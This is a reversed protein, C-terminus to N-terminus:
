KISWIETGSKNRNKVIGKRKLSYLDIRVTVVSYGIAKAIDPITLNHSRKIAGLLYDYLLKERKSLLITKGQNTIVRNSWDDYTMGVTLNSNALEDQYVDYPKVKLKQLLKDYEDASMTGKKKSALYNLADQLLQIELATADSGIRVGEIIDIWDIKIYKNPKISSSELKKDNVILFRVESEHEFALRKLLLLRIYNNRTFHDFYHKYDKNESNDEKTSLHLSNLVIPSLYKVRGEYITCDHLAKILQFRFKMKDIEFQVCKSKLGTLGVYNKWASESESAITMCCAHLKTTSTKYGKIKKYDANYFRSEYQDQWCSPEVFRISQHNEPYESKAGLCLLAAELDM